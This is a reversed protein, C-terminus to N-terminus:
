SVYVRRMRIASLIAFIATYFLSIALLLFYQEDKFFIINLIRKGIGGPTLKLLPSLPGFFATPVILGGLIIVCMSILFYNRLAGQSDTSISAGFVGLASIMMALSLLSLLLEPLHALTYMNAAIPLTLAAAPLSLIFLYVGGSLLKNMVFHFVGRGALFHMPLTPFDEATLSTISLAGLIMFLTILATAYYEVPLMQGLPSLETGVKFITHRLFADTFLKSATASYTSSAEAYGSERLTEYVGNVSKQATNILNTGSTLIGSILGAQLPMSENYAVTITVSKGSFLDAQFNKPITLRACVRDTETLESTSKIEMLGRTTENQVLSDIIANAQTEGQDLNEIAVM